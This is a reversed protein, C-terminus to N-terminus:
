PQALLGRPELDGDFNRRRRVFEQDPLHLRLQFALLVVGDSCASSSVYLNHL